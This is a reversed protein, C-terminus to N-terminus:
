MLFRSVNIYLHESYQIFSVNCISPPQGRKPFVWAKEVKDSTGVPCQM